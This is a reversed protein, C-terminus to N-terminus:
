PKPNLTYHTAKKNDRWKPDLLQIRMHENIDGEVTQGTIPDVFTTNKSKGTKPAWDTRIKMQKEERPIIPMATVGEDDAPPPPAEMEEDDDEPPPPAMEDDDDNFDIV